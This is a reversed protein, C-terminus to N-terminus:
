RGPPPPNISYPGIGVDARGVGRKTHVVVDSTHCDTIGQAAGKAGAFAEPPTSGALLPLFYGFFAALVWPEPIREAASAGVTDAEKQGAFRDTCFKNGDKRITEADGDAVREASTSAQRSPPFRQTQRAAAHPSAARRLDIPLRCVPTPRGSSKFGPKCRVEHLFWTMALACRARPLGCKGVVTKGGAAGKREAAFSLSSLVGDFGITKFDKERSSHWRHRKEKAVRIFVAM